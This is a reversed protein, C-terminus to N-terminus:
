RPRRMDGAGGYEQEGGTGRKAEKRGGEEGKRREEKGGEEGERRGRRGSTGRPTGRVVAARM